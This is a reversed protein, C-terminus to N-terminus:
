KGSLFDPDGEAEEPLVSDQDSDESPYLYAMLAREWYKSAEPDAFFAKKIDDSPEIAKGEDDVIGEWKVLLTQAVQQMLVSFKETFKKSGRIKALEKQLKDREQGEFYRFELLVGDDFKKVFTRRKSSLVFAM